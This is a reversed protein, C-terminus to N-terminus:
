ERFDLYSKESLKTWPTVQKQFKKYSAYVEKTIADTEGIENVVEISLKKLFQMVKKPFVNNNSCDAILSIFDVNSEVKLLKLTKLTKAGIGRPPINIIRDFSITDYPNILLRLFCIIDKIEARDYFSINGFIKYQIKNQRLVDELIRSQANTRYFIAIENM